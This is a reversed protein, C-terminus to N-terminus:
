RRRTKRNSRKKRYTRRGGRPIISQLESEVRALTEQLEKLHSIAKPKNSEKMIPLLVNIQQITQQIFQKYRTRQELLQAIRRRTKDNLGLMSFARRSDTAAQAAYVPAAARPIYNNGLNKKINNETLTGDALLEKLLEQLKEDKSLLLSTNRAKQNGAIRAATINNHSLVGARLFEEVLNRLQKDANQQNTVLNRLQKDLQKDANQQNTLNGAM